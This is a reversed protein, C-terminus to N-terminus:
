ICAVQEALATQSEQDADTDGSEKIRMALDAIPIAPDQM